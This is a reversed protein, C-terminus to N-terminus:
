CRKLEFLRGPQACALLSSPPFARVAAVRYAALCCGVRRYFVLAAGRGGSHQLCVAQQERGVQKKRATEAAAARAEEQKRRQEEAKRRQEEQAKAQAQARAQAEEQV